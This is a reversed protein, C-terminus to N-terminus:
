VAVPEPTVPVPGRYLQEYAGCVREWGFDQARELGVEGLPAAGLFGAIAAHHLFRGRRGAGCATAAEGLVERAGVNPSGVVATGSAMAEIYPIGFGEYTSPLCFVWAQRYLEVLQTFPVRGFWRIGEGEIQEECVAWFEANPVQPRIERQFKELLWAGRKRNRMTGVFLLVPVKAKEGPHFADLGVGNPIIHRIGPIYRRTNESVTVLEDALFTAGLECAALAGMRLKAVAGKGHLMEALCSGHFTHIHRPRETGWLFWDDGHANLVDFGSFDEQRLDWAFGFTALRRRRPVVRVQYQSDPSAGTQSFVTVEHGRQILANAFHHVQYGVGIKSGSPLYLSTLAIKM